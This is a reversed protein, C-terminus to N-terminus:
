GQRSPGARCGRHRGLDGPDHRPDSGRAHHDAAARVTRRHPSSALPHPRIAARRVAARRTRLPDPHRRQGHGRSDLPQPLDARGLGGARHLHEDCLGPLHAPAAPDHRAARLWIAVTAVRMIVYGTVLVTNDLHEGQELSSFVPPIGLAVVLVGIMVVLTALRFFIDENDYASALWSYNIWAWSVAFIAFGFGVFMTSLHGLELAHAAQSSIQSFAVVFTLDFLLELPTAGRHREQPDRGTM